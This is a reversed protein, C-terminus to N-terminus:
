YRQTISLLYLEGGLDLTGLSKSLDVEASQHRVNAGIWTDRSIRFEFGLRAYWGLDLDSDYQTEPIAPPSDNLNTEDELVQTEARAWCLLPGAGMYLRFVEAPDLSTYLGLFLDLARYVNDFRIRLSGGSPGSQALYSVDKNKWSVLGGGEWGFNILGRRIPMQVAGGLYPLRDFNGQYDISERTLTVNSEDLYLQGALMQIFGDPTGEAQAYPTIVSALLLMGTLRLGKLGHSFTILHTSVPPM